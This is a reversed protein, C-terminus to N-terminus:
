RNVTVLALRAHHIGMSGPDFGEVNSKQLWSIKSYASPIVIAEAMVMDHVQQSLGERAEPDLELRAQTLLDDVEENEWRMSGGGNLILYDFVEAPEPIGANWGNTFVDAKDTVINDWYTSGDETVFNVSIGLSELAAQWIVVQGETSISELLYINITPLGEGNPYGAETLLAAAQELDFNYISAPTSAPANPPLFGLNAPFRAGEDIINWATERDLAYSMAQRVLPENALQGDEM